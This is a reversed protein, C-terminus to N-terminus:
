PSHRAALLRELHHIDVGGRTFGADQLLERHLPINTRIGEVRMDDLAVRMRALAQARTAGHTVLKAILSDYYDHAEDGLPTDSELLIMASSNSDFEEFTQGVQKM